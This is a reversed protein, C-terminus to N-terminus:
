RRVPSPSRSSDLPLFHRTLAGTLFAACCLLVPHRRCMGGAKRVLARGKKGEEQLTEAANVLAEGCQALQQSLERRQRKAMEQTTKKVGNAANRGTELLHSKATEGTRRLDTVVNSAFQKAERALTGARELPQNGEKYPQM